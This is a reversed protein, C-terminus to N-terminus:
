VSTNELYNMYWKIISNFIEKYGFCQPMRSFYSSKCGGQCVPLYKCNKCKEDINPNIWFKYLETNTIGEWINGLIKQYSECCKSIKGDPLITLSHESWAQCAHRKYNLRAIKNPTGMKNKVLLDFLDLLNQDATATSNFSNPANEDISSWLPYVYYSINTYESLERHLFNILKALSQHNTGDYNMRIAVHIGESALYKISQIVTKFNHCKTNCYNKTKNYDEGYGDLTIQIRKLNWEHRMKQSLQKSVLSGNSIMSTHIICQKQECIKNIASMIHSITDINLLPEGGFWELRLFDGEALQSDIFKIVQNATDMTMTVPKIGKEFCYFCRANCASTSWIRFHKNKPNQIGELRDENIKKLEDFDCEVLVGQKLLTEIESENLQDSLYKNYTEQEFKGIAGSLSNYVIIENNKYPVFINYASKKYNTM